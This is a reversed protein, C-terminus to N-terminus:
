YIAIEKSAMDNELSEKAKCSKELFVSYEDLANNVSKLATMYKEKILRYYSTEDNGIWTHTAEISELISDLELSRMNLDNSLENIVESIAYVNEFTMKIKKM